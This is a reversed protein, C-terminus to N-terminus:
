GVVCSPAETDAMEESLSVHMFAVPLQPFHANYEPNGISPPIFGRPEIVWSGETPCTDTDVTCTDTDMTCMYPFTSDSDNEHSHCPCVRNESGIQFQQLADECELILM